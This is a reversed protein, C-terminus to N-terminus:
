KLSWQSVARGQADVALELVYNGAVTPPSPLMESVKKAIDEYYHTEHGMPVAVDREDVMSETGHTDVVQIQQYPDVSETTPTIPYLLMVGNLATKLATADTYASDRLFVRKTSSFASNLVNCVKDLTAFSATTEPKVVEYKTCLADRGRSIQSMANAPLGAYFNASSEIYVWNLTGMDIEAWDTEHKGSPEYTDGDAYLENNSDLRFIGKLDINDVAYTHKKYAEYTGNRTPDSINICIDNKYTTGYASGCNFRIYHCESDTTYTGNTVNRTYKGSLYSKDAGYAYILMSGKIYYTTNPFVPIFNTSRILTNNSIKEGDAISYSGLEWEEDWQNFGVTEMASIKSHIFTPESYAYYDKPFYRRFWAVGEGATATELNYVYDAIASGFMATLDFVMDNNAGDVSITAGDSSSVEWEFNICAVYKHGSPITVSTFNTNVIQNWAITGGVLKEVSKRNGNSKSRRFNYPESDSEYTTSLVAKATGATLEDYNGDIEAKSELATNVDTIQEQLNTDTPHVHDARAFTKKTGPTATGDMKPTDNSASKETVNGIIEYFDTEAYETKCFRLLYTGSPMPNLAPDLRYEGTGNVNIKPSDVANPQGFRVAIIAGDYLRFEPCTVVKTQVSSSTGTTGFWVRSTPTTVLQIATTSTVKFVYFGPDLHYDESGFDVTRGESSSGDGPLVVKLAEVNNGNNLEIVLYDGTLNTGSPVGEPLRFSKKATDATADCDGVWIRAKVDLDSRLNDLLLKLAASLKNTTVAGNALKATTIGLDPVATVYEPHAAIIAMLTENLQSAGVKFSAYPCEETGRTDTIQGAVISTAGAVVTIDAIRLESIWDGTELAPHQPTQAPTGTRYILAAARVNVDRDVQLIISDKRPYLSTNNPVILVKADASIWKGSLLATGAAVNVKMSPTSTATVEFGGSAEFIGESLIDKYPMNMEDASYLRDQNVSDYFGSDVTYRTDAM